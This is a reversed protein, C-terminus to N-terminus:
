AEKSRFYFGGEVGYDLFGWARGTWGIKASHRKIANGEDDFESSPVTGNKPISEIDGLTLEFQFPDSVHVRDTWNFGERLGSSGGDFISTDLQQSFPVPGTPRESLVAAFIDFEAGLLWSRVATIRYALGQAYGCYGDQNDAPDGEWNPRPCKWHTNGSWAYVSSPFGGDYAAVTEEDMAQRMADGISEGFPPDHRSGSRTYSTGRVAEARIVTLRDIANRVQKLWAGGNERLSGYPAYEWLRCDREQVLDGYTWMRPFDSWDEEFDEWGLNVFERALSSLSNVVGAVVDRSVTKWPSIRLVRRDVGRHLAACREMIAQRIAMVYDANAPDPTNWNMGKDEWSEPTEYEIVEM